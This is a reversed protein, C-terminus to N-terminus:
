TNQLGAYRSAEAWRTSAKKGRARRLQSECPRCCGQKHKRGKPLPTGTAPPSTAMPPAALVGVGGPNSGGKRLESSRCPRVRSRLPTKDSVRHTRRRRKLHSQHSFPTKLDIRVRTKGDTRPITDGLGALRPKM